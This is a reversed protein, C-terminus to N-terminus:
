YIIINKKKQKFNIIKQLFFFFYFKEKSNLTIVIYVYIKYLFNVVHLYVAKKKKLNITTIFM